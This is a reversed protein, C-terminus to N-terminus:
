IDRISIEYEIRRMKENVLICFLVFEMMPANSKMAKITYDIEQQLIRDSVERV